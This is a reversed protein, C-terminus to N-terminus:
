TDTDGHDERWVEDIMSDLAELADYISDCVAASVETESIGAVESEIHGILRQIASYQKITM